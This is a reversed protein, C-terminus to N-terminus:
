PQARSCSLDGAQGACGRSGPAEQHGKRCVGFGGEAAAAAAARGRGERAVCLAVELCVASSSGLHPGPCGIHQLLSLSNVALILAFSQWLNTTNIRLLQCVVPVIKRDAGACRRRPSHCPCRGPAQRPATRVPPHIKATRFTSPLAFPGETRATPDEVGLLLVGRRPLM